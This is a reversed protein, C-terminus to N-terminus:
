CGEYRRWVEKIATTDFVCVFIVVVNEVNFSHVQRGSSFGEASHIALWLNFLTLLQHSSWWVCRFRSITFSVTYEGDAFPIEMSTSVQSNVNVM